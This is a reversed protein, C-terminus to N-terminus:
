PLLKSNGDHDFWEVGDVMWADNVKLLAFSMNTYPKGHQRQLRCKIQCALDAVPFSDLIEVDMEHVLFRFPNNSHLLAEAVEAPSDITPANAIGYLEKKFLPTSCDMLPRFGAEWQIAELLSQCFQDSSLKKPRDLLLSQTRMEEIRSQLFDYDGGGTSFLRSSSRVGLSCEWERLYYDVSPNNSLCM